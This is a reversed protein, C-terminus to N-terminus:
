QMEQYNEYLSLVNTVFFLLIKVPRSRKFFLFYPRLFVFIFLIEEYFINEVDFYKFNEPTNNENRQPVISTM